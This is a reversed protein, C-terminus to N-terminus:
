LGEWERRANKLAEEQTNGFGITFDDADYVGNKWNGHENPWYKKVYERPSLSTIKINYVEDGGDGGNYEAAVIEKKNKSNDAKLTKFGSYSQGVKKPQITKRTIEDIWNLSM